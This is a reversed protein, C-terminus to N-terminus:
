EDSNVMIIGLIVISGGILHNLTIKENFFIKSWLLVWFIVIGKNSFATILSFDKLIFQWGIAYLFMLLLALCYYVLFRNSLFPVGSALKSLVSVLSFLLFLVHLKMYKIINSKIM